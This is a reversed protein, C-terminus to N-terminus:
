VVLLVASLSVMSLLTSVAVSGAALERPGGLQEALVYAAAATPTALFVLMVRMEVPSLGAWRGALWGLAPLLGLKILSAALVAPLSGGARGPELTAGIALLALPLSMRGLAELTREAAVPMPLRLAAWVGGAVCAIILPNTALQAAVKVLAEPGFRHRSLLLVVVGVINYFIVMVTLVIAALPLPDPAGAPTSYNLVALGVFALNGRFGAQVFTGVAGGPLRLVSAFAYAALIGAVTVGLALALVDGRGTLDAENTAMVGFLLCPLALYYVLRNTAKVTAPQLFGLCRLGWGLAVIIFVPALSNFVHQM